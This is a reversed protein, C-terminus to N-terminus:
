IARSLATKLWAKGTTLDIQFFKRCDPCRVSIQGGAVDDAMVKGRECKPCSFTRNLKDNVM